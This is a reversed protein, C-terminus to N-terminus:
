SEERDQLWFEPRTTFQWRMRHLPQDCPYRIEQPQMDGAEGEWSYTINASLGLRFNEEEKRSTSMKPFEANLAERLGSARIIRPMMPAALPCSKRGLYPQYVPRSLARALDELSWRSDPQMRVAAVWYGDCRYERSSLITNLQPRPASLEDRRTSLRMKFGAGPVQATHYDKLLVGPTHQKIAILVEDRLENQLKQDSRKIGLAAALLGIIASRSPSAASPRTEGVAAEGWSALPGYLRFVLYKM